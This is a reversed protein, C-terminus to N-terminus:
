QGIYEEKKEILIIQKESFYPLLHTHCTFFLIQHGNLKNLLQLMRDTRKQDFNVFSDDIIIPFKYTEFLTTALALRLSVYVQEMTAQSLENAEFFTHDNREILFGIGEEKAHIRVYSGITLFSLYEEAKTLLHPLKENKYREITKSLLHKAVVYSGWKKASVELEYKQHKYRHLLETYTGGEELLRIQYKIDALENQQKKVQDEMHNYTLNWEEIQENLQSVHQYEQYDELSFGAMSIQQIIAKKRESQIERLQMEKAKVRFQEETEANAESLLWDLQAQLYHHEKMITELDVELEALKGNITEYQISLQHAKKLEEKLSIGMEIITSKNKPLFREALTQISSNIILLEAEVQNQRELHAEKALSLEKMDTLIQYADNLNEFPIQVPFNLSVVIEKLLKEHIKIEKEWKEYSEIIQDYRLQQQSLRLKSSQLQERLRDDHKLREEYQEKVDGTFSAIESLLQKEKEILKQLIEDKSQFANKRVKKFHFVSLLIFCAAIVSLLFWDKNLGTWIGIFILFILIINTQKNPNNGESKQIKKAVGYYEIKDQIEKIEKKVSEQHNAQKWQQLFTNREKETLLQEEFFTIEKEIVELAAQEEYFRGDLLQKQDLLRFYKTHAKVMKEKMFISTDITSLSHEDIKFYLKEKFDKLKMEISSLHLKLESFEKTLQEYKPLLALTTEVEVECKLLPDNVNILELQEKLRKQKDILGSIQAELPTIINVINEYRNLGDAPFTPILSTNQLDQNLLKLEQEYPFYNKWENMRNIKYLLEKMEIQLIHISEALKRQKDVLSSYADNTKQAEKLKTQLEQLEKLKVNLVPKIGGPKFLTDLEKKLETEVKYLKDTGVAGTSFLFKGLDESKLQHIHQLGTLNFSFISQFMAKDMKKMLKSLLEEGGITGNELKVMVDGTAKGKVREIIVQGETPHKLLLKGGYKTNSKPEYRLDAQQKTPFGFLISHLFSMITSKGAENEGYFVHFHHLDKIVLNELKGYGYIHIEKIIM